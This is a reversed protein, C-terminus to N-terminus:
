EADRDRRCHRGTELIRGEDGLVVLQLGGPPRIDAEGDIVNGPSKASVLFIFTMRSLPSRSRNSSPETRTMRAGPWVGAALEHDHLQGLGACDDEGAVHDIELFVEVLVEIGGIGPM